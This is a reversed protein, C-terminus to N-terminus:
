NSPPGGPGQPGGRGGGTGPGRDRMAKLQQQQEATLITELKADVDKQLADVQSSQETTLQLQARVPPPLIQGPQAPRGPHGGGPGAAGGGSGGAGPPPGGPAGPGREGPGGDGPGGDRGPRGPPGGPGGAGGGGRGANLAASEKEYLATLEAKTVKGDKDADARDFLARLRADTLEKLTLAQDGDADYAMLKAIFGDATPPPSADRGGRGGGPGGPSQARATAAVAFVALAAVASIKFRM